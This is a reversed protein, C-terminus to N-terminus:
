FRVRCKVGAPIRRGPDPLRLRVGFTGRAADLERDVVEVRAPHLGGVPEEPRAGGPAPERPRRATAGDGPRQRAEILCDYEGRPQAAGNAGAAPAAPLAARYAVLFFRLLRL